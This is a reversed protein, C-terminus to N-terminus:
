WELFLSWEGQNVDPKGSEGLGVGAGARILWWDVYEREQNTWEICKLYILGHLIHNKTVLKKLKAHKWPGDIYYCPM